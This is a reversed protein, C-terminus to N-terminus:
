GLDAIASFFEGIGELVPELFGLDLWSADLDMSILESLPAHASDGAIGELMWGKMETYDCVEGTEEHFADFDEHSSYTSMAWCSFDMSGWHTKRHAAKVEKPKYYKKKGYDKVLVTGVARLYGRRNAPPVHCTKVAPISTKVPLPNFSM